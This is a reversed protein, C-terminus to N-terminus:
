LHSRAPGQTRDRDPQAGQSRSRKGCFGLIRTVQVEAEAPQQDAELALEAKLADEPQPLHTGGGGGVPSGGPLEAGSAESPEGLGYRETQKLTIQIHAM